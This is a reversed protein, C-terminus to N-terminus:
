AADLLARTMAEDTANGAVALYSFGLQGALDAVRAGPVLLLCQRLDPRAIDDILKNLNQLSEGSHVSLVKTREATEAREKSEVKDWSELLAKLQVAAREPLRRHYLECFDVRAGRAELQEAIYNRGGLGRCILIKENQVNQLEPLAMLAESNMAQDAAQVELGWEDAAAATASGVAFYNIDVPLQPWYHDIWEMAQHVANQSVFIVKRYDALDVVRDKVAQVQEPAGVPVIELVPLIHTLAGLGRLQEQWKAAQARPRTILVELHNLGSM